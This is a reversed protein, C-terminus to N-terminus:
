GSAPLIRLVARLSFLRCLLPESFSAAASALLSGWFSTPHLTKPLTEPLVLRILAVAGVLVLGCLVGTGFALSAQLGVPQAQRRTWIATLLPAPEGNRARALRSGALALLGYIILIQIALLVCFLPLPLPLTRQEPSVLEFISPLLAPVAVAGFLGALGALVAATKLDNLISVDQPMHM